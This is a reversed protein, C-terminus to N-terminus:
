GSGHYIKIYSFERCRGIEWIRLPIKLSGNNFKASMNCIKYSDSNHSLSIKENLSTNLTPYVLAILLSNCKDLAYLRFWWHNLSTIARSLQLHEISNWELSRMRVYRTELTDKVHYTITRKIRSIGTRSDWSRRMYWINISNSILYTLINIYIHFGAYFFSDRLSNQPSSHMYDSGLSQPSARRARFVEGLTKGFTQGLSEGLSEALSKTLSEALSKALSKASALRRGLTESWIIHM